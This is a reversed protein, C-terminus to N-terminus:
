QQIFKVFVFPIYIHTHTYTHTHTLQETKDSESGGHATAQWTDRDMASELCSDQLPNGHGVESVCVYVCM